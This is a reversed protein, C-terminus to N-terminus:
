TARVRYTPGVTRAYTPSASSDVWLAYTGAKRLLLSLRVKGGAHAKVRGSALVHSRTGSGTGLAVTTGAPLGPASCVISVRQAHRVHAPMSCSLPALVPVVGVTTTGGYTAEAEVTFRTSRLVPRPDHAVFAGGAGTTTTVTVASSSGPAFTVSVHGGSIGTGTGAVLLHGSVSATRGRHVPRVQSMLLRTIVPAPAPLAVVVSTPSSLVSAEATDFRAAVTHTGSLGTTDWPLVSSCANSTAACPQAVGVSIGDVVLQLDKPTDVEGLPITGTAAVTIVGLVTSGAAPATLVVTPLPEQVTVPAEATQVEAERTQVAINWKHEGSLGATDWTFTDSCILVGSCDKVHGLFVGHDVVLGMYEPSDGYTPDVTVTATVTVVGTVTAGAAPGTVVLSPVLPTVLTATESSSVTHAGITMTVLLTHPGLGFAGSFYSLETSCGSAVDHQCVEVDAQVGDVQLSFHQTGALDTPDILGTVDVYAIPGAGVSTGATPSTIAVARTAVTVTVVASSVTAGNRTTARAQLTHSGSLGTAPWALHVTCTGSTALCATPEAGVQAGDAWLFVSAPRDSGAPDTAVTAVVDVVGAVTANAAPSVITATPFGVARAPALFGLLGLALASLPTM